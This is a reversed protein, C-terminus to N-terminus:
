GQKQFLVQHRKEALAKKISVFGVRSAEWLITASVFVGVTFAYVGVAFRLGGIPGEAVTAILGGALSELGSSGMIWEGHKDRWNFYFERLKSSSLKEMLTIIVLDLIM